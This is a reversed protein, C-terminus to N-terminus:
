RSVERMDSLDYDRAAFRSMGCDRSLRWRFNARAKEPSDATKRWPVNTRFNLYSAFITKASPEFTWFRIM